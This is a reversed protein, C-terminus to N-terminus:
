TATPWTPAGIRVGPDFAAIGLGGNGADGTGAADVGIFNGTLVVNPGNATIGRGTGSFRNIVLGRITTPGSQINIGSDDAPADSGDIEIKLVANTGIAATNQKAGAQSYGDILVPEGIPPLAPNPTITHLGAGPIAFKITDVAPQNNNGNAAAM